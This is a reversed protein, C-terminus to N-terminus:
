PGPSPDRGNSDVMRVKRYPTHGPSSGGSNPRRDSTSRCVRSVHGQGGCKRCVIDPCSRAMHGELGCEYCKIRDRSDVDRYDSRGSSQHGDGGRRSLQPSRSSNRSYGADGRSGFERDRSDYRRSAGNYERDRSGYRRSNMGTYGGDRERSDYRSRNTRDYSGSRNGYERSPNDYRSGKGSHESYSSRSYRDQSPERRRDRVENVEQKITVKPEPVSEFHRASEIAKSRSKLIQGLLAWTLEPKAMLEKRLASDRLGNVANSLCVLERAGSLAVNVDVSATRGFAGCDRSLREVRLLYDRHDEGVGQSVTVFKQMRVFVTEEREYHSVLVEMIEEYTADPNSGAVGRARLAERGEKGVARLLALLKGRPTFNQVELFSEDQQKVSKSGMDVAKQEIAITFEDLWSRWSGLVDLPDIILGPLAPSFRSAM